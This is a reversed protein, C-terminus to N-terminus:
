FKRSAKTFSNKLTFNVKTIDKIYGLIDFINLFAVLKFIITM